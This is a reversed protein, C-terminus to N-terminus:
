SSHPAPTGPCLALLAVHTPLVVGGLYVALWLAPYRRAKAGVLVRGPGLAWNLNEGESALARSALLVAVAIPAWFLPARADYGYSALQHIMLPPLLLHFLSLARLARPRRRDFMYEVLGGPSRGLVLRLALSLVWFLELGLTGVAIMSAVLGSELWWAIALGFLAIDSLWLFNRPGYHRGYALAVALAFASYGLKALLEIM